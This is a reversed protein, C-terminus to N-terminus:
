DPSVTGKFVHLLYNILFMAELFFSLFHGKLSSLSIFANEPTAFVVHVHQVACMAPCHGFVQLYM